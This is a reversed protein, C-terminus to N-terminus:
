SCWLGGVPEAEELVWQHWGPLQWRLSLNHRIQWVTSRICDVPCLSAQEIALGCQPLLKKHKILTENKFCTNVQTELPFPRRHPASSALTQNTLRFFDEQTIRFHCPIETGWNERELILMTAAKVSLHAPLVCLLM